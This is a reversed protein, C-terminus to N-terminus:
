KAPMAARIAEPGHCRISPRGNDDPLQYFAVGELTRIWEITGSTPSSYLRVAWLGGGSVGGFSKRIEPYSSDIVCDFYDFGGRTHYRAAGLTFFGAIQVDAHTKTFKGLAHPTGMLVDVEIRDIRDTKVARNGDIKPDYLSKYAKITELHETPIRLFIIDPGWEDWGNTKAPGCPVITKVDMLFRHNIDDTISIGVKVASKLAKHWVHAATLIFHSQGVSILTGTGALELRNGNKDNFVAFLAVTSSGIERIIQLPAVESGKLCAAIENLNM